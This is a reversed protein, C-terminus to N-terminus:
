LKPLCEPKALSGLSVIVAQVGMQNVCSGKHYPNAFTDQLLLLSGGVVLVLSLTAALFGNYKFILRRM